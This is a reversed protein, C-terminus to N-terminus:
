FDLYPLPSNYLNCICNFLVAGFSYAVRLWKYQIVSAVPFPAMVIIRILISCFFVVVFLIRRVVAVAVLVVVAVGDEDKNENKTKHHLISLEDNHTTTEAAVRSGIWCAGGEGSRCNGSPSPSSSGSCIFLMWRICNGRISTWNTQSDPKRHDVADVGLSASSKLSGFEVVFVVVVFVVVVGACLIRFVLVVSVALVM